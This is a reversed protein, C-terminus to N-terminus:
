NLDPTLDLFVLRHQALFAGEALAQNCGEVEEM